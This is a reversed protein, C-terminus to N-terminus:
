MNVVDSFINSIFTISGLLIQTKYLTGDTKYLTNNQIFFNFNFKM